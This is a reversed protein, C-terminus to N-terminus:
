FLLPVAFALAMVIAVVVLLGAYLILVLEWLPREAAARSAAPQVDAEPAATAVAPVVEGTTAWSASLRGHDSTLRPAALELLRADEPVVVWEHERDVSLVDRELLLARRGDELRVALAQPGNGDLWIEEVRGVDGHPSEVVYGDTTRLEKTAVSM